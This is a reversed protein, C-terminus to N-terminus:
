PAQVRVDAVSLVCLGAECHMARGFGMCRTAILGLL